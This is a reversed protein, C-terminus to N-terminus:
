SIGSVAKNPVYVRRLKYKRFGVVLVSQIVERMKVVFQGAVIRIVGASEDQRVQQRIEAGARPSLHFQMGSLQERCANGLKPRQAITQALMIKDVSEEVIRIKELFVGMGDGFHDPFLAKMKRPLAKVSEAVHKELQHQVPLDEELVAPHTIGKIRQEILDFAPQEPFKNAYM